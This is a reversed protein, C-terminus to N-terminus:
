YPYRFSRMERDTWDMFAVNEPEDLGLEQKQDRSRNEFYHVLSIGILCTASVVFMAILVAKAPLYNPADSARYTQPGIINGVCYGVQLFVNFVIKKSAGGICSSLWSYYFPSAVPYFYVIAYGAMRGAKNSAPLAIMMIGGVIAVAFSFVGPIVRTKTLWALTIGLMVAVVESAGTSMGILATRKKDFGFNSIITSGFNTVGGNSINAAMVGLAFLYLRVDKLSEILQSTKFHPNNIGTKNDRIREVAIRREEPSLLRTTAPSSPMFFLLCTGFFMTICGLILFLMKWRSIGGTSETRSLLGYAILGGLIQAWGNMSFWIGTRTVQEQRRYFRGTLLIFGPTIGAELVGLFFRVCVIGAYNKCAAHLTLIMGWLIVNISVYPALPVHQLFYGHIPSAGLYGFYFISALWSYQQGYLGLDAQVGLLNAYNLSTKDLFQLLVCICMMPMLALDIRCLVRHSQEPTITEADANKEGARTAVTALGEDVEHADIPLKEKVTAPKFDTPIKSM